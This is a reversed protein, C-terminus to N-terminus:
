EANIRNNSEQRNNWRTSTKQSERAKKRCKRAIHGKNHCYHCEENKFPCKIAIHCGGCRYCDYSLEESKGTSSSNTKLQHVVSETSHKQQYNQIESSQKTAAELAISIEVARDLTLKSGESLLRQQIKVNRIGDENGINYKLRAILFSKNASQSDTNLQEFVCCCYM